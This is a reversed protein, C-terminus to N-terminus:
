AKGPIDEAIALRGHAAAEAHVVPPDNIAGDETEEGLTAHRPWGPYLKVLAAAPPGLKGSTMGM